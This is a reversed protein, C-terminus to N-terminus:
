SVATGAVLDLVAIEQGPAAVLSRLHHLGRIDRLRAQEPDADIIWDDDDDGDRRLRWVAADALGSQLVVSRLVLDHRATTVLMCTPSAEPGSAGTACAVLLGTVAPIVLKGM